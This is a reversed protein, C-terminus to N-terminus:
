KKKQIDEAHLSKREMFDLSLYYVSEANREHAYTHNMDRIYLVHSYLVMIYIKNENM